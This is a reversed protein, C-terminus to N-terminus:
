FEDGFMRQYEYEWRNWVFGIANLENIKEKTLKSVKGAMKLNYSKRVNSVWNALKRNEFNIPVCCNGYEERYRILERCRADWQRERFTKWWEPDIDNLAKVKTEDLECAEGTIYNQYEKRQARIWNNLPSPLGETLSSYTKLEEFRKWWASGNRKQKTAGDWCFGVDNLVRIRDETMSCPTENACYKKYQQRQKNVWNGLAPNQVYRKPVLTDGNQERYEILQHVRDSWSLRAGPSRKDSPIQNATGSTAASYLVIALPSLGLCGKLLFVFNVLHQLRRGVM